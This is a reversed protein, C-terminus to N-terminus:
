AKKNIDPLNIKGLVWVLGLVGAILAIWLGFGASGVGLGESSIRLFFILAGLAIAGFSGLAVKKFTDDFPLAKDGMLSAVAVGIVGFFSLMGWSRFGNVSGGGFIGLSISLWPLFIAILAVGAFILCYLKQKHIQEM